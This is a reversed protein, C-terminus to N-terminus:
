SPFTTTCTGVGGGGGSGGAVWICFPEQPQQMVIIILHPLFNWFKRNNRPTEDQISGFAHKYWWTKSGNTWSM